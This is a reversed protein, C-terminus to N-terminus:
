YRNTQNQTNRGRERDPEKKRDRQRDNLKDIMGDKETQINGNNSIDTLRDM